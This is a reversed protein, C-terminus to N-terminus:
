LMCQVQEVTGAHGAWHRKVRLRLVLLMDFVELKNQLPQRDSKLADEITTWTQIASVHNYSHLSPLFGDGFHFQKNELAVGASRQFCCPLLLRLWLICARLVALCM